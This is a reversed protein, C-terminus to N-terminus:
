VNPRAFGFRETHWALTREGVQLQEPTMDIGHVHGTEGVLQAIVYVDRGTGCGLDVVTAGSLADPIPFGCGYFRASVEEHVNDLLPLLHQPPAGSACCANTQLDESSALVQGYYQSVSERVNTGNIPTQNDTPM